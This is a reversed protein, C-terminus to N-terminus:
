QRADGNDLMSDYSDNVQLDDFDPIDDFNRYKTVTGKAEEEDTKRRIEKNKPAAKPKDLYSNKYSVAPKLQKKM